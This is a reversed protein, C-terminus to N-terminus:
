EAPLHESSLGCEICILSFPGLIGQRPGASHVGRDRRASQPNFTTYGYGHGGGDYSTSTGDMEGEDDYSPSAGLGQGGRRGATSPTATTAAAVGASKQRASRDADAVIRDTLTTPRGRSPSPTKSRMRSAGTTGILQSARTLLSKNNNNNTTTSTSAHADSCRRQLTRLPARSRADDWAARPM